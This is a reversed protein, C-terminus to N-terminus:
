VRERCSARGIEAKYKALAAGYQGAKTIIDIVISDNQIIFFPSPPGNPDFNQVVSSLESGILNNIKGTVIVTDTATCNTGSTATLIYTGAASVTITAGNSPSTIVGGNIAKWSFTAGTTSSTGTLTTPKGFDLPKDTGANVNPTVCESFPAYTVNTGSQINVQIGSWLAGTIDTNGYGTGIYIGAYPAWVTGLWSSKTASSSGSAVYFAFKSWGLGNGHIETFIRSASGGNIMSVKIKDLDADHHIYIKFTGSINNKFDFVFNNSGKNDIKDFVYIGPGSFTLTKGGPLKIDDYAGPAITGSTIDPIRPYPYPAFSTIAPLAPFVPLTPAGIIKGGAPVPGTYFTNTTVKGSVTGGGIVINGKVDINGKINAGTGVSLITGTVSTSNSATIVGTVINNYSLVVTGKSYINTINTSPSLNGFTSTGTTKVTNLSGVAGGTVTTSSGLYVGYGPWFPFSCGSGGSGSFLVFDSMKLTPTQASTNGPLLFLSCLIISCFSLATKFTYFHKM